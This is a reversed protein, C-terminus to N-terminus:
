CLIRAITESLNTQEFPKAIFGQCGEDLIIQTVSGISYGSSLIALIEPNIERMASFADRGDLKPMIMDLIVLDIEQWHQNVYERDAPHIM